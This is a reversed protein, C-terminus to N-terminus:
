IAFEHALSDCTARFVIDNIYIQSILLYKSTKRIFFTMGAQGRKFSNDLLYKTLREYWAKSAQKLGYLSKKWSTCM